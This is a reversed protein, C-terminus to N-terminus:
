DEELEKLISELERIIFRLLEKHGTSQLNPNDGSFTNRAGAITYKKHYLLDKIKLIAAVDKDSYKRTGGPTKEPKLVEFQTEWYRLVSQPLGVMRCVAGISYKQIMATINLTKSLTGINVKSKL